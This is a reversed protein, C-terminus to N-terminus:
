EPLIHDIINRDASVDVLKVTAGILKVANGTSLWTNAPVIVEDGPNLHDPTMKNVLASIALLNASSGSNNTVAQSVDFYKTIDNEFQLVKKGMTVQTSLMVEVMAMVEDPGFTPEHLKIKPNSHNFKLNNNLKWYNEIENRINDILTKNIEDSM